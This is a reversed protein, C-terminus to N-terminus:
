QTQTHTHTHTHMHSYTDGDQRALSALAAHFWGINKSHPFNSIGTILLRRAVDTCTTFSFFSHHLFLKTSPYTYTLIHHTHLLSLSILTM